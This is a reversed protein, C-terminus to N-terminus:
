REGASRWQVPVSSTSSMWTRCSARYCHSPCHQTTLASDIHGAGPHRQSAETSVPIKGWDLWAATMRAIHGRDAPAVPNEGTIERLAIFWLDPTSQMERLIFPVADPGLKIVLQYAWHEARRAPSSYPATEQRWLDALLKFVRERQRQLDASNRPSHFAALAERTLTDRDVSTHDGATPALGDVAQSSELTDTRSSM